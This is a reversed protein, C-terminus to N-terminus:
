LVNYITFDLMKQVQNRIFQRICKINVFLSTQDFFLRLVYIHM